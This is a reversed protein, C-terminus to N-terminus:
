AGFSVLDVKTLTVADAVGPAHTLQWATVAESFPSDGPMGDVPVVVKLGRFAAESATYLVAGNAATGVTVLTTVGRDRLLKQLDERALFKDARASLVPEGTRPAVPPSIQAVTTTGALTHVVLMGHARAEGLLKAVHPLAVVCRPRRAETCGTVNFDMVILATTKPDLTVPKVPPAEPITAAAWQDTVAQAAGASPFALVAAILVAHLPRM